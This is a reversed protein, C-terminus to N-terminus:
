PKKRREVIPDTLRERSLRILQQEHDTLKRRLQEELIACARRFEHDDLSQNNQPPPKSM